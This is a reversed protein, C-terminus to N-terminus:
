LFTFYCSVITNKDAEDDMDISTNASDSNYIKYKMYLTTSPNIEGDEAPSFTRPSITSTSAYLGLLLIPPAVTSINQSQSVPNGNTIETTLGNVTVSAIPRSLRFVGMAKEEFVGGNLGTVSSSADSSTAIKYSATRRVDTLSQTTISTFNTPVVNTPIAAFTGAADWLVILDGALTSAPVTVTPGTSTASAVFSLRPTISQFRQKVLFLM